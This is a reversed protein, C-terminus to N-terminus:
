DKDLADKAKEVAVDIKADTADDTHEKIMEAAKDLGDAIKDENGSIASKAKGILDGIGM